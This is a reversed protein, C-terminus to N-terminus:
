TLLTAGVMLIFRAFYAPYRLTFASSVAIVIFAMKECLFRLSIAALIARFDDLRVQLLFSSLLKGYHM